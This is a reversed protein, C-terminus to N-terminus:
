KERKLLSFCKLCGSFHRPEGKANSMKTEKRVQSSFVGSMVAVVVLDILNGFATTLLYLSQVVSKM